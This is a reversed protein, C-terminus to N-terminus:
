TTCVCIHTNPPHSLSFYITRSCDKLPFLSNVTFLVEVEKNRESLTLQALAKCEDAAAGALKESSLASELEGVRAATKMREEHLEQQAKELQMRLAKIEETQRENQDKLQRANSHAENLESRLKSIENSHKSRIDCLDNAQIPHV